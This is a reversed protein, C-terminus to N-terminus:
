PSVSTFHLPPPDDGMGVEFSTEMWWRSFNTTYLKDDSNGVM